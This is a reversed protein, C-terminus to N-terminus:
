SPSPLVSLSAAVRASRSACNPRARRQHERGLGEEPGGRRSYGASKRNSRLAQPSGAKKHSTGQHMKLCHRSGSWFRYTGPKTRGHGLSSPRISAHHWIQVPVSHAPRDPGLFRRGVRTQVTYFARAKIIRSSADPLPSEACPVRVPMEGCATM